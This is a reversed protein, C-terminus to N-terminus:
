NGQDAIIFSGQLGVISLKQDWLSEVEAFKRRMRSVKSWAIFISFTPLTELAQLAPRIMLKSCVSLPPIDLSIAMTEVPIPLLSWVMRTNWALFQHAPLSQINLGLFTELCPLVLKLIDPFIMTDPHVQVMAGSPLPRWKLPILYLWLQLFHLSHRCFKKRDKFNELKNKFTAKDNPLQYKNKLLIQQSYVLQEDIIRKVLM